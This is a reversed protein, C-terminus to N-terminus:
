VGPALERPVSSFPSCMRAFEEIGAEVTWKPRWGLERLRSGDVIYSLQNLQKGPAHVVRLHPFRPQLYELVQKVSRNEGVVNYVGGATEEHELAFVFASAADRVHVFPRQQEGAGDVRIPMSLAAHLAFMNVVTHVRLGPSMGFVTGLRLATGSIRGGSRESLAMTAHEGDLKFQAYPSAPVCESTETAVEETEGYVSCTSAYIVRRVNPSALAAEVVNRAGQLNIEETQQRRDFSLVANTLAALHIVADAYQMAAALDDTNLVDGFHFRYEGNTPLDMLSQYREDRMNDFVIIKHPTPTERHALDIIIQSGIYGAAGTILINM